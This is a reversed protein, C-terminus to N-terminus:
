QDSNSASKTKIRCGLVQQAIKAAVLALAACSVVTRWMMMPACISQCEATQGTFIYGGSKEAMAKPIKQPPSMISAPLRSAINECTLSSFAL